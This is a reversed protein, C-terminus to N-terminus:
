YVDTPDWCFRHSSNNSVSDLIEMEEKSLNFHFIKSNIKIREPSVSKPIVIVNHQYAWRLLIQAPSFHSLLEKLHRYTYNSVGISRLNGEEYHKELAKWSEQRNIANQPNNTKINQTGPWHILFLDLYDLNFRKLSENVANYCEEFGQDKPALKSTIFIDERKLPIQSNSTDTFLKKLVSGIAEENKYVSASDFLRYGSYIASKIVLEVTEPSKIRYTGLGLVPIEIGNNLKFKPISTM